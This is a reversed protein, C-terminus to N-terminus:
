GGGVRQTRAPERWHQVSGAESRGGQKLAFMRPPIRIKLIPRADDRSVCRTVKVAPSCYTTSGSRLHETRDHGLAPSSVGFMVAAFAAALLAGRQVFQKM